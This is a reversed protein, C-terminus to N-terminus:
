SSPQDSLLRLLGGFDQKDGVEKVGARRELVQAVATRVVGAIRQVRSGDGRAHAEKLETVAVNLRQTVDPPAGDMAREALFLQSALGSNFVHMQLLRNVRRGEREDALGLVQQARRLDNEIKASQGADMYGRYTEVFRTVFAVTDQLEDQWFEEEEEKQQPPPTTRPRDRRLTETKQFKTGQVKITVTLQRNRDYNFSVDVATSAPIETPLDFEIVGQEENRSAVKQDGEYVSVRILRENTPAFSRKMPERLPYPTGKPIIPVFVDRQDGKVAAIGLSMATVETVGTDGVSRASALAHKCRVCEAAQDDNLAKCEPNPCEVGQLTAALVSAGLAVCEMPNVNRRVKDKGFCNEVTEYVLPVLTSGGVLLVDSIDDPALSQEQLAKRVLEMSRDVFERIMSEFETRAITLEVDVMDTKTRLAAPIVIDVDNQASLAKKAKEAEQKALLLFKKDETPDVGYGKVSDVIKDMIKRDFDDGGLWNDGEIQLVQFQDKGHSDKVMQLISIDFTGGGFDYVLIRHRGGPRAQVGFAIAAATPEDIIKKVVLGAQEGAQRTAARQREEFYAPVTIVGHTVEEGLAKTADDKVQRLIMASIEVPTSAQGGFRVRLGPTGDEAPVVAYNFRQRVQAVRDEQYTRGMLRKISFVTDSPAKPAYNVAARGVFVKGKQCGVVSPTLNEGASTSLIRPEKRDAECFAAASNTTGLDIGIAKM